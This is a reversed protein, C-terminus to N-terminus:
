NKTEKGKIAIRKRLKLRVLYM